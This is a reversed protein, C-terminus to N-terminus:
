QNLAFFLKKNGPDFRRLKDMGSVVCRGNPDNIPSLTFLGDHRHAARFINACMYRYFESSLSGSAATFSVGEATVEATLPPMDGMPTLKAGTYICFSEGSTLSLDEYFRNLLAAVAREAAYLRSMIADDPAKTLLKPEDIQEEALSNVANTFSERCYFLRIAEPTLTQVPVSDPYMARALAEYAKHIKKKPSFYTMQTAHPLCCLDSIMHVARALYDAAQEPFGARQMALAMTYDEELMTRASKAFRGAGNKYYGSHPRLRVGMFNVACYYHRGLGNERDGDRDPCTVNEVLRSKIPEFFEKAEPVHEYLLPLGRLILTRHVSVSESARKKLYEERLATMNIVANRWKNM